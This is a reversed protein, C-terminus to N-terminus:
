RLMLGNSFDYYYDEPESGKQRYAMDHVKYKVGLSRLQENIETFDTWNMLIHIEDKERIQLQGRFSKTEYNLYKEALYDIRRTKKGKDFSSYSSITSLPIEKVVDHGFFSGDHYSIYFIKRSIDLGCMAFEADVVGDSYQSLPHHFYMCSQYLLDAPSGGKKVILELLRASGAGWLRSKDIKQGAITEPPLACSILNLTYLLLYVYAVKRM